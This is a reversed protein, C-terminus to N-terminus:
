ELDGKSADRNIALVIILNLICACSNLLTIWLPLPAELSVGVAFASLGFFFLNLVAKM